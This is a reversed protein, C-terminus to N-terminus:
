KEFSERESSSKYERMLRKQEDTWESLPLTNFRRIINEKGKVRLKKIGDKFEKQAENESYPLELSLLDETKSFNAQDRLYQYLLGRNQGCKRALEWISLFYDSGDIESAILNKTNEDM